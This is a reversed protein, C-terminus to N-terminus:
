LQARKDRKCLMKQAQCKFQLYCVKTNLHERCFLLVIVWVPIVLSIDIYLVFCANDYQTASLGNSTLITLVNVTARIETM